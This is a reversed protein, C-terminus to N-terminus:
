NESIITMSAVGANFLTEQCERCAYTHGEIYARAGRALEGASQVAVVEAHGMQECVSICKAYDEGKERPCTPQPNKCWNEGVVHKGDPTVLTCRVTRRACPGLIPPATNVQEETM